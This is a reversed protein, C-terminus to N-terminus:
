NWYFYFRSEIPLNSYLASFFASFYFSYDWKCTYWSFIHENVSAVARFVHCFLTLPVVTYCFSTSFTVHGHWMRYMAKAAYPARLMRFPRILSSGHSPAHLDGYYISSFQKQQSLLELYLLDIQLPVTYLTVNPERERKAEIQSRFQISNAICLYVCVRMRNYHGPCQIFVHLACM